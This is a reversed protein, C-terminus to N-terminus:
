GRLLRGLPLLRVLLRGIGDSLVTVITTTCHWAILLRIARASAGTRRLERVDRRVDAIALEVVTRSDGRWLYRFWGLGTRITAQPAQQVSPLPASQTRVGFINEGQNRAELRQEVWLGAVVRLQAETVNAQIEHWLPDRKLQQVVRAVAMDMTKAKLLDSHTVVFHGVDTVWEDPERDRATM